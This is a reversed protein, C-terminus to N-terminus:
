NSLLPCDKKGDPYNGTGRNNTGWAKRRNEDGRALVFVLFLVVILGGLLCISSYVSKEDVQVWGDPLLSQLRGFWENM